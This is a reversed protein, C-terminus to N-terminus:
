RNARPPVGTYELLDPSPDCHSDLARDLHIAEIGLARALVNGEFTGAARMMYATTAEGLSADTSFKDAEAKDTATDAVLLRLVNARMAGAEPLKNMLEFAGDMDLKRQEMAAVACDKVRKSEIMRAIAPDDISKDAGDAARIPTAMALALMSVAGFRLM